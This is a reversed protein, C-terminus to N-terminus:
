KCGYKSIINKIADKKPLFIRKHIELTIEAHKSIEPDSFEVARAPKKPDAYEPPVDLQYIKAFEELAPEIKDSEIKFASTVECIEAPASATTLANFKKYAAVYSSMNGLNNLLEIIRSRTINNSEKVFDDFSTEKKPTVRCDGTNIDSSVDLKLKFVQYKVVEVVRKIGELDKGAVIKAVAGSKYMEEIKDISKELSPTIEDLEVLAKCQAKKDSSKDKQADILANVKEVYKLNLPNFEDILLKLKKKLEADTEANSGRQSAILADLNKKTPENKPDLDLAKRYDAIAKPYDNLQTYIDGRLAHQEATSNKSLKEIATNIDKLAINFDKLKFYAQARLYFDGPFVKDGDIVKTYVKVAGAYDGKEYLEKGEALAIAESYRAVLKFNKMEEKIMNDMAVSILTDSEDFTDIFKKNADNFFERNGAAVADAAVFNYVLLGSIKVAKGNVLHPAFKAQRAAAVSAERLLENGSVAEAAIVNGQFDVTVTVNVAGSAKNKVAAPPYIPKVLTKAKGNLIGLALSTQSINPKSISTDKVAAVPQTSDKKNNSEAQAKLIAALNNKAEQNNPMIKLAQRADELAQEYNKLKFELSSLTTYAGSDVFGLKIAQRYDKRAQEYNKLQTNAIGRQAFSNANNPNLKIAENADSLAAAYNKDFENHIGARIRYGEGALKSDFAIVKTFDTLAAAYDPKTQWLDALGRLYYAWGFRPSIEIARSADVLTQEHKGMMLYAHARTAHAESNNAEIRIVETLDKIAPQYDKKEISSKARAISEVASQAFGTEVQVGLCIALVFFTTLYKKMKKATNKM